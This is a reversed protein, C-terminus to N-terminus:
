THIHQKQLEGGEPHLKSYLIIDRFDVGSYPPFLCLLGCFILSIKPKIKDVDQNKKLIKEAETKPM